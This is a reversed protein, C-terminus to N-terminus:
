RWTPFKYKVTEEGFACLTSKPVGSGNTTTNSHDKSACPQAMQTNALASMTMIAWASTFLTRLKTLKMALEKKFNTSKQETPLSMEVPDRWTTPRQQWIWSVKERQSHIAM